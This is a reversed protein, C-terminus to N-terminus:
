YNREATIRELNSVLTRLEDLNGNNKLTNARYSIVHVNGPIYGKANDIRDLSPSFADRKGISRRLPVDLLPCREPIVVDALEITFAMGKVAARQRARVWLAREPEEARIRQQYRRSSARATDLNLAYLARRNEKTKEPNKARRVKVEAKREERHRRYYRQYKTESM